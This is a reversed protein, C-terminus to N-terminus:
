GQQALRHRLRKIIRAQRHIRHNKRDIRTQQDAITQAQETVTRELALTHLAQAVAAKYTLCIYDGDTDPTPDDSAYAPVGTLVLAGTIAITSLTKRM